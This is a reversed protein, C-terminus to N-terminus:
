KGEAKGLADAVAESLTPGTGVYVGEPDLLRFAVGGGPITNLHDFSRISPRERLWRELADFPSPDAPHRYVKFAGEADSDCWALYPQENDGQGRHRWRAWGIYDDSKMKWGKETNTKTMCGGVKKLLRWRWWAPREVWGHWEIRAGCYSCTQYTRGDAPDRQPWQWRHSFRCRM